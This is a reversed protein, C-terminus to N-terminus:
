LYKSIRKVPSLMSVAMETARSQPIIGGCSVTIIASARAGWSPCAALIVQLYASLGLLVDRRSTLRYPLHISVGVCCMCVGSSVLPIFFLKVWQTCCYMGCFTIGPLTSLRQFQIWTPTPTTSFSYNCCPMHFLKLFTATLAWLMQETPLFM